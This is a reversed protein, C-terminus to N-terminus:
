KQKTPWRKLVKELSYFYEGLYFYLVLIKRLLGFIAGTIIILM